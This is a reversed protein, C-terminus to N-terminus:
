EDIGTTNESDKDSGTDEENPDCIKLFEAYDSDTKGSESSEEQ